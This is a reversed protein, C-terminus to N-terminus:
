KDEKVVGNIWSNLQGKRQKKLVTEVAKDKSIGKGKYKKYYTLMTTLAETFCKKENKADAKNNLSFSTWGGLFIILLDPNTKTLSLLEPYITASVNPAGELWKIVFANADKRRGKHENPGNNELWSIAKLVHPQYKAYDKTKNFRYNQPVSFNENQGFAFSFAITFIFLLGLKQLRTTM